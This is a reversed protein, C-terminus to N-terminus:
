GKLIEINRSVDKNEMWVVPRLIFQLRRGPNIIRKAIDVVRQDVFNIHETDMKENLLSFTIANAWATKRATSLSFNLVAEEKNNTIKQLFRLPFWINALATQMHEMLSAIVENIRDFDPQLEHIQDGRVTQACAIGLDLNIHTNIGLLLHQLVALDNQQCADFTACWANTCPQNNNYSEWALLYRNAFIVMLREMRPGDDFIMNEIGQKVTLTMRKYLTAFYGNRHQHQRCWHIIADLQDLVDNMNGAM